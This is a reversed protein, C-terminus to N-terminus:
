SIHAYTVAEMAAEFDVRQTPKKKDWPCGMIGENGGM